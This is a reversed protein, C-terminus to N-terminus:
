LNNRVANAFDSCSAGGPLGTMQPGLERSAAAIAQELKLAKSDLGIHRLMLVAATMLSAPNALEAIGEEVMRPASGHIAEFIAHTSGINASGATGVGGQIQAAEDTIIDGYLNPLVFVQFQNRIDKNVLNAAMIDVFWTDTEIEPYDKAVELCIRQFDGDTKKMINAKTVISVRTKGNKRAFDFAARAIRRTGEETTVKFDVALEKGVRIGRSGLAYEGETNERFFTWDIGETAVKVPRVNAFLDLSKRLFVNASELNPGGMAANPTTLPGKLIVNCGLLQSLVEDPVTKSKALRNEITFGEVERLELKGATMEDALLTKLVDKTERMIVPGIGDGAVLGIITADYASSSADADESKMKAKAAMGANREYQEVLMSRFQEVAIDIDQQIEKDM